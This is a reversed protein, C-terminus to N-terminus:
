KNQDMCLSVCYIFICYIASQLAAYAFYHCFPAISSKICSVKFTASMKLSEIMITYTASMEALTACGMENHEAPLQKPLLIHNYHFPQYYIYKKTIKLQKLRVIEMKIIRFLSISLLVVPGPDTCHLVSLSNCGFCHPSHM